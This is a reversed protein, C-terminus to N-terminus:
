FCLLQPIKWAHITNKVKKKIKYKFVIILLTILETIIHLSYSFKKQSIERNRSNTFAHLPPHPSLPPILHSCTWLLHIRPRLSCRQIRCCSGVKRILDLATSYCSPRTRCHHRYHHCAWELLIRQSWPRGDFTFRVNRFGGEWKTMCRRHM